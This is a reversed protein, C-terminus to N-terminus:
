AKQNIIGTEVDIVIKDLYLTFVLLDIIVNSNNTFSINLNRPTAKDAERCRKLDVWYFRNQSWWSESILGNQIGLDTATLTDILQIQELYNEYQYFLSQGTLVNMNGLQVQLNTLSLPSFTAPCTDLPSAYQSFGFTSSGSGTLATQSILPVICVAIPNRIGSQILANFSGNSPIANFQNTIVQEYVCLKNRNQEVYMIQKAPDLKIMSYYMRCAPMPSSPIADTTFSISGGGVPIATAPARAIFVGACVFATTPPTSSCGATASAVNNITFPCTNAFTSNTPIGFAQAATAPGTVPVSISGTNLYFRVVASLRRTLGISEFINCLYKMPVVAYDYWYLTNGIYGFNPKFEASLQTATALTISTGSSTGYLSQPSTLPSGATDAFKSIRKSLCTNVCNSNLSPTAISMIDSGVVSTFPVNNVLGTGAVVLPVNTTANNVRNFAASKENDLCGNYNLTPGITHLDTTSMQSMMRIGQIVNIFPQSQQIVKGDLQVEVQHVLNQYNTKLTCLSAGLVGSATAAGTTSGTLGLSAAPLAVVAGASTVYKACMVIPIVMFMDETSTFAGSNYLGTLDFTVQSLGSNNSYVGQNIDNLSNWAKDVYASYNEVSQASSSKSFEYNDSNM